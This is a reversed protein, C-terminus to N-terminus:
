ENVEENVSCALDIALKRAYFGEAMGSGAGCQVGRLSLIARFTSETFWSRQRQSEFCDLITQIKLQAVAEPVNVFTSPNDIDGDYKPIEYELILHRRFTNWTLESVVRHDQHLDARHHTFVIDPAVERALAEFLDKVDAGLYPFYGDRCRHVDVTLRDSAGALLRLAKRTERERTDDASFVVCRCAAAPFRALLQHLTAGCGIEIDDAHAGLFLFERPETSPEIELM